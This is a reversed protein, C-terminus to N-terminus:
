DDEPLPAPLVDRGWVLGWEAILKQVAAVGGSEAAKLLALRRGRVPVIHQYWTDRPIVAIPTRKERGEDEAIEQDTRNDVIGLEALRAKMGNSLYMKRVNFVGYEREQWAEVAEAEGTAAADGLQFPGLRGGRRGEKDAGFAMEAGVGDIPETRAKDGDKFLYRGVAGAETLDVHDVRVGHGNGGCDCGPRNCSDSPKYGGAAVVAHGWRASLAKGFKEVEEPALPRETFWMAHFHVHFGSNLGWTDEYSRLVGTIGHARKAQQWMKGSRHGYAGSWGDHLVAVLGGRERKRLTGYKQRKFHRLTHASLVIGGGNAIWAEAAQQAFDARAVLIRACCWTCMHVMGCTVVGAYSSGDAGKQVTAAGAFLKRGCGRFTKGLSVKQHRERREFREDRGEESRTRKHTGAATGCGRQGAPTATEM